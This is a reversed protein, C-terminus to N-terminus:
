WCFLHKPYRNHKQKGSNCTIEQEKPYGMGTLIQVKVKWTPADLCWEAHEPIKYDNCTGWSRTERGGRGCAKFHHLCATLLCSLTCPAKVTYTHLSFHLHCSGPLSLCRSAWKVKPRVIDTDAWHFHLLYSTVENHLHITRHQHKEDGRPLQPSFSKEEWEPLFETRGAEWDWCAQRWWQWPQQPSLGRQAERGHHFSLHLQPCLM